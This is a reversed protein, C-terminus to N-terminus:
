FHLFSRITQRTQWGQDLVMDTWLSDLHQLLMFSAGWGKQSTATLPFFVANHNACFRSNKSWGYPQHEGGKTRIMFWSTALLLHCSGLLLCPRLRQCCPESPWSCSSCTTCTSAKARTGHNPPGSLRFHLFLLAQALGSPSWRALCM